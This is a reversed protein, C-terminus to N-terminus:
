LRAVNRDHGHRQKCGLQWDAPQVSLRNPADDRHDRCPKPTHVLCRAALEIPERQSLVFTSASMVLALKKASPCFYQGGCVDIGIVTANLQDNVDKKGACGTYGSSVYSSRVERM